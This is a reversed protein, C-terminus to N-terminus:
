VPRIATPRTCRPVSVSPMFMVRARRSPVSTFDFILSSCVKSPSPRLFTWDTEEPSMQATTPRSPNSIPSVMQSKSLGSGSGGMAMSSGVMLMSKVMLSEGKKPRSPFNTVERWM